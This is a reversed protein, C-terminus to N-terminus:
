KMNAFTLKVDIAILVAWMAWDNKPRGLSKALLFEFAVAAQSVLHIFPSQLAVSVVDNVTIM